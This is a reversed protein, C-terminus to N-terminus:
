RDELQPPQTWDIPGHEFRYKLRPLVVREWARIFYDVARDWVGGSGWGDHVLRLRTHNEDVCRMYITVHTRQQRVEPMTNPANWTFSLMQEPQVALVRMGDAGRQGPEAEPDFYIEYPGDPRLDVHCDPAFFSCIGERTTWARWVESVPANIDIAIDIARLLDDM